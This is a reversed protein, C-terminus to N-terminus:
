ARWRRGAAARRNARRRRRRERLSLTTLRYRLRAWRGLTAKLEREAAGVAEWYRQAHVDALALSGFAAADSEAALRGLLAAAPAPAARATELRTAAAVVAPPAALRMDRLQDQVEEWGAVIRHAPPGTGRRRRRRRAKAVVVAAILGAAVLLLTGAAAAAAFLPGWEFQPVPTAVPKTSGVPVPAMEEDPPESPKAEPPPPQIVQPEPKPDQRDMADEPSDQRNPTPFFPTWGLGELCIEVWATMDVGKFTVAGGEFGAGQPGRHSANAAPQEGYGPAFGMVVRAPLGVSRAMVAMAAAYQEADGVMIEADLLQSIRDAGHGALSQSRGSGEAAGEQGDSYYGDQLYQELALAKAGGTAAGRVVAAAKLDASLVKVGVPQVVVAAEAGAIEDTSPRYVGTEATVSYTVPKAQASPLALTGTVQNIRLSERLGVADDGAFRVDQPSGVSYLWVTDDDLDELTVTVADPTTAQAPMREFNGSAEVGGGGAVNWVIGDFRDMVALKVVAGAPLDAARVLEEGQLGDKLYRRYAALPSPHNRPDFPPEVRERVVLRDQREAARGGAVGGGVALATVVVLALWRRPQLTKARWAAWVVAVVGGAVGLPAAAFTERSGFVVCVATVTLPALAAVPAWKSGLRIALSVGVAAGVYALLFPALGFGGGQGIPTQVTLLRRWVSTVGTVLWREAQATPWLTGRAMEPVAMAPGVLLYVVAFVAMTPLPQLRRWSCIAAVTVGAVAGGVAPVIVAPPTFVPVLPALAILVLAAIIAGDALRKLTLRM